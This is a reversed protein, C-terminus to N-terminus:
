ETFYITIRYFGWEFWSILLRYSIDGCRGRNYLSVLLLPGYPRPYNVMVNSFKGALSRMSILNQSNRESM